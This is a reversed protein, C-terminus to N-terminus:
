IRLTEDHVRHIFTHICSSHLYFILRPIKSPRHILLGFDFKITECVPSWTQHQTWNEDYTWTQGSSYFEFWIYFFGFVSVTVSRCTSM